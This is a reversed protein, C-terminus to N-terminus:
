EIEWELLLELPLWEQLHEVFKSCPLPWFGKEYFKRRTAMMHVELTRHFRPPIVIWIRQGGRHLYRLSYLWANSTQLLFVVGNDDPGWADVAPQHVDRYNFKTRRLTGGGWGAFLHENVDHARLVVPAAIECRAM